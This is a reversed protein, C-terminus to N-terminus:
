AISNALRPSDPSSEFKTYGDIYNYLIDSEIYNYFISNNYGYHRRPPPPGAPSWVPCRWSPGASRRAVVEISHTYIYIYIYICTYIYIYVCICM